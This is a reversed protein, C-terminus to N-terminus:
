VLRKAKGERLDKEAAKMSERDDDTLIVDGDIIHEKIYDLDSRIARLEELMQKTETAMM